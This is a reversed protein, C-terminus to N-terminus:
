KKKLRSRNDKINHTIFDIGKRFKKYDDLNFVLVMHGKKFKDFDNKYDDVPKVMKGTFKSYM